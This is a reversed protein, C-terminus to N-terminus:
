TQRPLRLKRILVNALVEVESLTTTIEEEIDGIFVEDDQFSPLVVDTEVPHDVPRIRDLLPAYDQQKLEDLLTIKMDGSFSMLTNIERSIDEYIKLRETIPIIATSNKDALKADTTNALRKWYDVFTLQTNIDSLAISDALVPHVRNHFDGRQYIKLLEVMCYESEFYQQSFVVIVQDARSLEAMFRSILQGHKMETQDRILEIGRQKCLLDLNDVIKTAKEVEWSYSVFARISQAEM